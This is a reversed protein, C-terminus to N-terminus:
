TDTLISTSTFIVVDSIAVTNNNEELYDKIAYSFSNMGIWISLCVFISMLLQLLNATLLKSPILMGEKRSLNGSFINRWTWMFGGCRESASCGSKKFNLLAVKYYKPRDTPNVGVGRGDIASPAIATHLELANEVMLRIKHVAAAKVYSEALINGEQLMSFTAQLGCKTCLLFFKQINKSKGLLYILQLLVVVSGLCFTTAILFKNEAESDVNDNSIYVAPVVVAATVIM